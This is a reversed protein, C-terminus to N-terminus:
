EVVEMLAEVQLRDDEGLYPNHCFHDLEGRVDRICLRRKSFEERYHDFFGVSLIEELRSDCRRDYVNCDESSFPFLFCPSVKGSVADIFCSTGKKARCGYRKEELNFLDLIYISAKDGTEDMIRYYDNRAESEGTFNGTGPPVLTCSQNYCGILAGAGAMSEIFDRSTVERYNGAHVVASYGRPVRHEDLLRLARVAKDHTGEGRRGDHSERFGEVSVLVFLNDLGAAKEILKETVTTGNTYVFFYIDGHRKMCDLLEMGYDPDLFPEGAGMISVFSVDLRAAQDFIYDLDDIAAFSSSQFSHMLCSPCDLNCRGGISLAIATLYSFRNGTTNGASLGHRKLSRILQDYTLRRVLAKKRDTDLSNFYRILQNKRPDGTLELRSGRSLYWSMVSTYMADAARSGLMGACVRLMAAASRSAIRGRVKGNERTRFGWTLANGIIVGLGAGSGPLRTNAM